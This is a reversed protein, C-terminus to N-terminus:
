KKGKLKRTSPRKLCQPKHARMERAGFELGCHECTQLKKPRGGGESAESRRRGVEPWFVDNPITELEWSPKYKM